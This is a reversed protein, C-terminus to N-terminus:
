SSMADDRTARVRSSGLFVEFVGVCMRMMLDRQEIVGGPLAHNVIRGSSVCVVSFSSVRRSSENIASRFASCGRSVDAIAAFRGEGIFM